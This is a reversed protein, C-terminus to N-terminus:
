HVGVRSSDLFLFDYNAIVAYSYQIFKCSPDNHKLPICLVQNGKVAIYNQSHTNQLLVARTTPDGSGRLRKVNYSKPVDAYLVFLVDVIADYAYRPIQTPPPSLGPATPASMSVGFADLPFPIPLPNRRVLRSSPKPLM